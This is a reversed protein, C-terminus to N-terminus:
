SRVGASAHSRAPRRGRGGGGSAGPGPALYPDHPVPSSPPLVVRSSREPGPGSRHPSPSRPHPLGPSPPRSDEARARHGAARRGTGQPGATGQRQASYPKPMGLVTGHLLRHGSSGPRACGPRRHRNGKGLVKGKRPLVRPHRPDPVWVRNPQSHRRAAAM